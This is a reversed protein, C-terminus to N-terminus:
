KLGESSIGFALNSERNELSVAPAKLWQLKNDLECLNSVQSGPNITQLLLIVDRTRPLPDRLGEAAERRYM